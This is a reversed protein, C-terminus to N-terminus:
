SQPGLHSAGEFIRRTGGFVGAWGRRRGDMFMATEAAGFDIRVWKTNMVWRPPDIVVLDVYTVRKVDAILVRGRRGDFEASRASIVLRGTDEYARFPPLRFPGLRRCRISPESRYWVPDFSTEFTM